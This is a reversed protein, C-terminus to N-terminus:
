SFAMRTGFLGEAPVTTHGPGSGASLGCDGSRQGDPNSQQPGFPCDQLPAEISPEESDLRPSRLLQDGSTDPPSFPWLREVFVHYCHADICVTEIEYGAEKIELCHGIRGWRDICCGAILMILTIIIIRKM